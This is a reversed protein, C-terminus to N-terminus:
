SKKLSMFFPMILEKGSVKKDYVSIIAAGNAKEEVLWHLVALSQDLMEKTTAFGAQKQLEKMRRRREESVEYQVRIKSM